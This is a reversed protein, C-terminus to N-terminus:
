WDKEARRGNAPVRMRAERRQNEQEPEALDDLLRAAQEPTM